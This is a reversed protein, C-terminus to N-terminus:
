DSLSCIEGVNVKSRLEQGFVLNTSSVVFSGVFVPFPRSNINIEQFHISGVLDLHTEFFKDVFLVAVNFFRNGFSM